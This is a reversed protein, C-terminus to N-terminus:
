VGLMKLEEPTLARYAGRELAADLTLSGISLRKLYIVTVGCKKLMRKVQHYRGETIQLIGRTDCAPNMPEERQLIDAASAKPYNGQIRGDDHNSLFAIEAPRTMTEDGIDMGEAFQAACDAALSGEGEFYYLKSVHKRPSTIRHAFAGDDTLLLLGETDKDLRGVPFLKKGTQPSFFDLVTTEPDRTACVCGAPKHFMYYLPKASAVSQEGYQVHRAEDVQLGPDTVTIGDVTVKGKRIASKIESRTGLGADALYKDLRM